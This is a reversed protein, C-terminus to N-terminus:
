LGENLRGLLNHYHEDDLEFLTKYDGFRKFDPIYNLIEKDNIPKFIKISHCHFLLSGNWGDDFMPLCDRFLASAIIQSDMQFLVLDGEIARLGHTKYRYWGKEEILTKCFFEKQIEDITKGVFDETEHNMPLIRVTNM